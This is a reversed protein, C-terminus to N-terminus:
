ARPRGEDSSKVIVKEKAMREIGKVIRAVGLVNPFLLPHTLGMPKIILDGSGFGLVWHRFLDGRERQIVMGSADYVTEEGGIELRVRVQGPTFIMYTQRDFFLFNILWLFFLVTSILIYGGLNIYISLQHLRYFIIEWWGAVAFIISLMVISTTFFVTWLGRVSINTTAIIVLLVITYISGLAKYHSVLITPQVLEEEGQDNKRKLHGHKPDLVLVDRAEFKGTGDIDILLKEGVLTDPPVIALHKHDIYTILAFLFGIAWVPWWYFLNSHRYVTIKDTSKTAPDSSVGAHVPHPASKAPPSLPNHQAPPTPDSSM